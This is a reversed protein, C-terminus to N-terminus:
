TLFLAKSVTKRSQASTSVRVKDPKEQISDNVLPQRSQYANERGRQKLALALWM